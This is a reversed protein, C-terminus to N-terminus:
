QIGPAKAGPPSKIWDAIDRIVDAPVHGPVSYEPPLSPGTGALFLHNLAPYLKFTANARGALAAKWKEFDAVTVQYDREGQLVLLRMKLKAADAPPDYGRLDLWYSAPANGMFRGAAADDATLKAVDALLQRAGALQQQEADSITGDAKFLYEYQDLISQPLSRVAGAMVVLGAIAPDAAGIRPAVMGGLSHGLVFIRSKDIAPVTRLLAVAALADEVTEEKVTFQKITSLKAGYVLTRKEYRLVAVGQSALGLAVDKLFKNPGYTEDRDAPGSGHVLVIGPFPGAGNPVTLTGPLAWEGTGVTVESATYAAPTDYAPPSYAAAPPRMSLGAIEGAPNFVVMLELKGKEFDCPVVVALMTGRQEERSAGHKVYKGIQTGVSTWGTRLAAETVATKMTADFRSVVSGFDNALIAELVAEADKARSLAPTQQRAAVGVFAACVFVALCAVATWRKRM